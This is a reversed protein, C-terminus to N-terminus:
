VTIWTSVTRGGADKKFVRVQRTRKVKEKVPEDYGDPLALFLMLWADLIDTNVDSAMLMQDLLPLLTVSSGYKRMFPNAQRMQYNRVDSTVYHFPKASNVKNNGFLDRRYMIYKGLGKKKLFTAFHDATSANAEAMIGKFGGHKNYATSLNTINIYSAEVSKPREYYMAVPQYSLGSPDFGKIILAAVKSGNESGSDTGTAVGDVVTYYDVGQKPEEIYTIAGKNNDIIEAKGSYDIVIAKKYLPKDKLVDKRQQRIISAVDDEWRSGEGSEFIDQLSRPNNRVFARLDDGSDSARIM